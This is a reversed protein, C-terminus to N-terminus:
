CTECYDAFGFLMSYRSHFSNSCAIRCFLITLMCSFGYDQIMEVILCSLLNDVMDCVCGALRLIVGFCHM